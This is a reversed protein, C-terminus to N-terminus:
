VAIRIESRTQATRFACLMKMVITIDNSHCECMRLDRRLTLDRNRCLHALPQTDTRARHELPVLITVPNDDPLRAAIRGFVNMPDQERLSWFPSGDLVHFVSDPPVDLLAMRATSVLTSTRTM